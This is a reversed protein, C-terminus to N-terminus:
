ESQSTLLEDLEKKIEELMEEADAGVHYRSYKCLSSIYPDVITIIDEILYKKETDFEFKM